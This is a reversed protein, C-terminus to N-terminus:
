GAGRGAYGRGPRGGRLSGEGRGGRLNGEGRGGRLSNSAGEM